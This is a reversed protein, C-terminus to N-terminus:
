FEPEKATGFDAKPATWQNEQMTQAQSWPDSPAGPIPQQVTPYQQPGQAPPVGGFPNDNSFRGQPQYSQQPITGNPSAGQQSKPKASLVAIVRAAVDLNEYKVGNKESVRKSLSGNVLIRVSLGQQKYQRIQDVADKAQNSLPSVDFFMTPKDVYQNTNKDKYSPTVGVPIVCGGNQFDRIDGAYGQFEISPENAM